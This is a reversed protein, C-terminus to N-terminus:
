TNRVRSRREHTPLRTRAFMYADFENDYQKIHDIFLDRVQYTTDKIGIETMRYNILLNLINKLRNHDRLHAASIPYQNTNMRGVEADFHM